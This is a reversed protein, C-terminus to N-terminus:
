QRDGATMRTERRKRHQVVVIAPTSLPLAAVISGKWPSWRLAKLTDVSVEPRARPEGGRREKGAPTGRRRDRQSGRIPGPRGRLARERLADADVRPPELLIRVVSATRLDKVFEARRRAIRDRRMSDRIQTKAQEDGQGAFQAKASEYVARVEEDTVSRAKAEIEARTLDEVTTGRSAAERALLRQALHEELVLRRAQYEDSRVRLLRNGVLADLEAYTVRIAGDAALPSAPKEARDGALSPGVLVASWVVVFACRLRCM